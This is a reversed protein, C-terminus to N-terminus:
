RQGVRRWGEPLFGQNKAKRAALARRNREKAEDSLGSAGKKTAEEAKAAAQELSKDYAAVDVKKAPETPFWAQREEQHTTRSSPPRHTM